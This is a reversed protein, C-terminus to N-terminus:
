QVADRSNTLTALSRDLRDHAHTAHGTHLACLGEFGNLRNTNFGGHPDDITLQDVTKWARHLAAAAMDAQGARACIEAHVAHARARVAYSAGRHAEVTAARVITRAAGLDNTAHLTVMAHSTQVAARRSRDGLRGAVDTADAYLSMATGDDRTEFALRAALAYTNTALLLLNDQPGAHDILLLRRCTEVIPWLQLQLRVFPASGVQANIAMVSEDLRSLLEHDLQSQDRLVAAVSSHTAPSLLALPESGDNTSSQTILEVLQRARQPPMGFHSLAEMLRGFDSGAGLALSGAPTHAYLHALLFQYRDSPGTRNTLSEWRAITRRISAVQRHMLSTVALQRATDRLARALDAWSWGRAERLQRLLLAGAERDTTTV